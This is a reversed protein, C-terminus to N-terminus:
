PHRGSLPTERAEGARPHRCHAVRAAVELVAAVAATQDATSLSPTRGGPSLRALVPLESGSEERVREVLSQSVILRSKQSRCLEQMRGATNVTAGIATFTMSERTGIDGLVATGFNASVGVDIPSHGAGTRKANWLAVEDIMNVASHLSSTAELGTPTPVGFLALLADGSFKEISGGQSFIVKAMWGTMREFTPNVYVVKPGPRDLDATTVLISESAAELVASPDVESENLRMAM